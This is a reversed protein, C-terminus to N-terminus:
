PHTDWSLVLKNFHLVLCLRYIKQWQLTSSTVFSHQWNPGSKWAGCRWALKNSYVTVLYKWFFSLVSIIFSFFDLVSSPSTSPESLRFFVLGTSKSKRSGKSDGGSRKRCPQREIWFLISMKITVIAPMKQTPQAIQRAPAFRKSAQKLLRVSVTVFQPRLLSHILPLPGLTPQKCLMIKPFAGVRLMSEQHANVLNAARYFM